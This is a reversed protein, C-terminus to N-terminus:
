SGRLYDKQVWILGCPLAVQAPNYSKGGRAQSVLDRQLPFVKRATVAALSVWQTFFTPNRWHCLAANCHATVRIHYYAHCKPCLKLSAVWWQFGRVHLRGLPIVALSSAMLELMQRCLRFLLCRWVMFSIPQAPQLVSKKYITTFGLAMLHDVAVRAHKRGM